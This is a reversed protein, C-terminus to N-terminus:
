RWCRRRDNRLRRCLSFITPNYMTSKVNLLLVVRAAPLGADTTHDQSGSPSLNAPSFVMATVVSVRDYQVHSAALLGDAGNPRRMQRSDPTWKGPVACVSSAIPSMSRAGASGTPRRRDTPATHESGYVGGVEAVLRPLLPAAAAFFRPWLPALDTEEPFRRLVAAFLGLAGARLERAGETAAEAKGSQANLLRLNSPGPVDPAPTTTGPGLQKSFADPAIVAAHPCLSNDGRADTCRQCLSALSVRPLPAGGDSDDEGVPWSAAKSPASGFSCAACLRGLAQRHHKVQRSTETESESRRAAFLREHRSLLVRRSGRANHFHATGSQPCLCGRALITCFPDLGIACAAGMVPQSAARSTNRCENELPKGALSMRVQAAAVVPTCAEEFVALVLALLPPLYTQLLCTEFKAGSRSM